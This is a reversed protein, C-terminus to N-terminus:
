GGAALGAVLRRAGERFREEDGYPRAVLLGGELAGLFLRAEGRAEGPFRLEGHERGHALVRELWRENLDLFAVVAARVDGPLTEHEAALMGCLCMREHRLVDAYLEAYAELRGLAAAERHEIATLAADFRAAYREVLALGLAAKTPFHYHLSAKTIGLEAAVDSYSFGNFGRKQVLREAVDLARDATAGTAAPAASDHVDRSM